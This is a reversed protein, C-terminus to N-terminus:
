LEQLTKLELEEQKQAELDDRAKQEEIKLSSFKTLAQQLSTQLNDISQLEGFFQSVNNYILALELASFNDNQRVKRLFEEISDRASQIEASLEDINKSKQNIDGVLNQINLNRAKIELAAKSIEANLIAIERSLSDAEQEKAQILNQYQEIQTEYDKLQAELETRRSNVLSPDVQAHAFSVFLLFINALNILNNM